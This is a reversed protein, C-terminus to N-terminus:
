LFIGKSNISKLEPIFKVFIGWFVTEYNKLLFHRLGFPNLIGPVTTECNQGLCFGEYFTIETLLRSYYKVRILFALGTLSHTATWWVGGRSGLAARQTIYHSQSRNRFVPKQIPGFHNANRFLAHYGNGQSLLPKVSPRLM